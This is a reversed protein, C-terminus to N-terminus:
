MAPTVTYLVSSAKCEKSMFTICCAPEQASLKIEIHLELGLNYLSVKRTNETHQRLIKFSFLLLFIPVQPNQHRTNLM